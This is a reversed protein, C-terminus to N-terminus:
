ITPGAASSQPATPAVRGPFEYIFKLILEAFSILQEARARDMIELDHAADNGSTRITDIWQDSGPPVFGQDVLYKVYALFSQNKPAGREVAIHSILTRLALVACTYAEVQMCRRAEDYLANADSPVHEVKAGFSPAPTQNSGEFFSPRACGGCIHLRAGSGSVQYGQNSAVRDGCYGCVYSIPGVVQPQTWQGQMPPTKM